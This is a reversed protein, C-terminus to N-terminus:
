ITWHMLESSFNCGRSARRHHAKVLLRTTTEDDTPEPMLELVRSCLAATAKWDRLHLHCLSESLLCSVQMVVSADPDDLAFRASEAFSTAAAATEGSQLLKAGRTRADDAAKGM